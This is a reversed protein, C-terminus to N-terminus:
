VVGISGWQLTRTLHPQQDKNRTTQLFDRPAGCVHASSTVPDRSVAPLRRNSPEVLRKTSTIQPVCVSVSVCKLYTLNGGSRYGQIIASRAMNTSRFNVSVCHLMTHPMLWTGRYWLRTHLTSLLSTTKGVCCM